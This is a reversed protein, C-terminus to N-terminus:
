RAETPGRERYGGLPAWSPPGVAEDHGLIQCPKQAVQDGRATAQRYNPPTCARRRMSQFLLSAAAREARNSRPRSSMKLGSRRRSMEMSMSSTRSRPSRARQSASARKSSTSTSGSPKLTESVSHSDADTLGSTSRAMSEAIVLRRANLSCCSPRDPSQDCSTEGPSTKPSFTV